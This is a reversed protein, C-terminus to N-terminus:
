LVTTAMKWVAEEPIVSEDPEPPITVVEYKSHEIALYM